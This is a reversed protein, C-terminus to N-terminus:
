KLNITKPLPLAGIDEPLVLDTIRDGCMMYLSELTQRHNDSTKPIHVTLGDLCLRYGVWQSHPKSEYTWTYRCKYEMVIAKDEVHPVNVTFISTHEDRSPSLDAMPVFMSAISGNFSLNCIIPFTMEHVSCYTKNRFSWNDFLPRGTYFSMDSFAPFWVGKKRESCKLNDEYRCANFRKMDATYNSRIRHLRSVLIGGKPNSTYTFCSVSNSLRQLFDQKILNVGRATQLVKKCVGFYTGNLSLILYSGTCSFFLLKCVRFCLRLDAECYSRLQDAGKNECCPYYLEEAKQIWFKWGRDM